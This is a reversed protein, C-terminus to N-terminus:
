HPNKIPMYELPVKCNACLVDQPIVSYVAPGHCIPCSFRKLNSGKYFYEKKYGFQKINLRKVYAKAKSNLESPSWGISPDYSIILGHAEAVEKFRKNHYRHNNSTEKIDHIRCYLHCQEHLLTSCIEEPPSSITYASINLEYKPDDDDSVWAPYSSLHGLFRRTPVFTIIVEPLEENWFHTNFRNFIRTLEKEYERANKLIPDVTKTQEM